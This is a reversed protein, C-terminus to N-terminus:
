TLTPGSHAELSDATFGYGGWGPWDSDLKEGDVWYFAKADTWYGEGYQVDRRLGIQVKEAGRLKMAANLAKIDEKTRPTALQLGEDACAREAEIWSKNELSIVYKSANASRIDLLCQRNLVLAEMKWTRTWPIPRMPGSCIQLEREEKDTLLQMALQKFSIAGPPEYGEVVEVTAASSGLQM